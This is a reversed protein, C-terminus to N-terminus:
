VGQKDGWLYKHMQIQLRVPARAKLIWEALETASVQQYSPSLLVECRQNLNYKKIIQLSWDFDTQSCIVFKVQDTIQLLEINQWRNKTSEGSDPTKLDMIKVVKPNVATLDFSGSTELSVQLDADVLCNLLKICNPQALPEGGTVCIYKTQYQLVATLIDSIQLWQGGKFAYDTDCYQCRLPCGTLRVFVTPLGAFTSEGQLSYFIETIRLKAEVESSM